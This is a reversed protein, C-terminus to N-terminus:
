KQVRVIMKMTPNWKLNAKNESYWNKWRMIIDNPIKSSKLYGFDVESPIDTMREMFKLSQAVKYKLRFDEKLKDSVFTDLLALHANFISDVVNIYKAQEDWDKVRFISKTEEDWKLNSKNEYYWKKWRVVDEERVTYPGAPGSDVKAHVSTISEM